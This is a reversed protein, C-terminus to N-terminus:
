MVTSVPQCLAHPVDYKYLNRTHLHHRQQVCFYVLIKMENHGCTYASKILEKALWCHCYKNTFLVRCDHFLLIEM